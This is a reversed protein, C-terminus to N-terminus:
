LGVEDLGYRKWLQCFSSWNCASESNDYVKRYYDYIGRKDDFAPLRTNPMSYIGCAILCSLRKNVRCEEIITVGYDYINSIKRVTETAKAYGNWNRAVNVISEDSINFSEGDILYTTLLLMRLDYNNCNMETLTPKIIVDLVQQAKM